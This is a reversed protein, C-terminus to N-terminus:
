KIEGFSSMLMKITLFTQNKEHIINNLNEETKLRVSIRELADLASHKSQFRLPHVEVSIRYAEQILGILEEKESSKMLKDNLEALHSVVQVQENTM